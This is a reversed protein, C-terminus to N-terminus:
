RYLTSVDNIHYIHMETTVNSYNQEWHLKFGTLSINNFIRSWMSHQMQIVLWPMIIVM